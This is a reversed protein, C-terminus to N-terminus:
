DGVNMFQHWLGQHGERSKIYWREGLSDELEIYVEDADMMKKLNGMNSMIAAEVHKFFEIAGGYDDM